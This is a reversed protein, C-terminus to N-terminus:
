WNIFTNITKINGYRDNIKITIRIKLELHQLKNYVGIILFVHIYEDLLKTFLLLFFSCSLSTLIPVLLRMEIRVHLSIRNLLLWILIKVVNIEGLLLSRVVLTVILTVSIWTISLLIKIIILGVLPLEWIIGHRIICILKSMSRIRILWPAPTSESTM